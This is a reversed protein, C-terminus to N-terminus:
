LSSEDELDLNARQSLGSTVKTREIVDRALKDRAERAGTRFGVPSNLDSGRASSVKLYTVARSSPLRSLSEASGLMGERSVVQLRSPAFNVLEQFEVSTM